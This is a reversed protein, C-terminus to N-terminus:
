WTINFYCTDMDMAGVLTYPRWCCHCNGWRKFEWILSLAQHMTYPWYINFQVSKAAAPLRSILHDSLSYIDGSLLLQKGGQPCHQIHKLPKMKLLAQLTSASKFEAWEKLRIIKWPWLFQWRETTLSTSVFTHKSKFWIAISLCSVYLKMDRHLMKSPSM